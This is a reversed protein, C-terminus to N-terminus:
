ALVRMSCSSSIAAVTSSVSFAAGQDRRTRPRCSCWCLAGGAMRDLLDESEPRGAPAILHTHAIRDPMQQAWDLAVKGGMSFGILTVPVKPFPFAERNRDPAVITVDAPWDVSGFLSLEDPGGPQGHLYVFRRTM